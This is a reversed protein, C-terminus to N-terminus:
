NHWTRANREEGDIGDCIRQRYSSGNTKIQQHEGCNETQAKIYVGLLLQFYTKCPFTKQYQMVAIKTIEKFEATANIKSFCVNEWIFLDNFHWFLLYM